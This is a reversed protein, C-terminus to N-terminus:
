QLVKVENDLLDGIFRHVLNDLSGEHVQAGQYREVNWGLKDDFLSLDHKINEKLEQSIFGDICLGLDGDNVVEKSEKGVLIMKLDSKVPHLVTIDEDKLTTLSM